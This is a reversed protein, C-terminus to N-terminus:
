IVSYEIKILCFYYSVSIHMNWILPVCFAYKIIMKEQIKEEFIYLLLLNLAYNINLIISSHDCVFSFM